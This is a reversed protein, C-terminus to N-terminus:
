TEKVERSLNSQERVALLVVFDLAGVLCVLDVAIVCKDCSSYYFICTSIKFYFVMMTSGKWETTNLNYSCINQRFTFSQM